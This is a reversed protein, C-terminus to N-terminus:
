ISFTRCCVYTAEKSIGIGLIEKSESEIAVWLWLLESGVKIQTEDIIFGSIKTKSYSLRELKYKQIWDGIATHSITVFRSIAKSTSQQM